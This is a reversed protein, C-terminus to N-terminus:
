IAVVVVVVVLAAADAFRCSCCRFCVFPLVAILFDLQWNGCNALTCYFAHFLNICFLHLCILSLHAADVVVVVHQSIIRSPRLTILSGVNCDVDSGTTTPAATDNVM